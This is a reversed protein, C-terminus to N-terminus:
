QKKLRKRPLMEGNMMDKLKRTWSRAGTAIRKAEIGAKVETAKVRSSRDPVPASLMRTTAPASTAPAPTAQARASKVVEFTAVRHDRYKKESESIHQKTSLM